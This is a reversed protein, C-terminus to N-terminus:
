SAPSALAPDGDTCEYLLVVPIIEARPDIRLEMRAQDAAAEVQVAIRGTGMRLRKIHKRRQQGVDVLMGVSALPRLSPLSEPARNDSDM